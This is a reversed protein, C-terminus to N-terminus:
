QIQQLSSFDLVLYMEEGTPAFGRFGVWQLLPFGYLHYLRQTNAFRQKCKKPEEVSRIGQDFLSMESYQKISIFCLLILSRRFNHSGSVSGITELSNGKEFQIIFKNAGWCSRLKQHSSGKEKFLKEYIQFNCLNSLNVNEKVLMQLKNPIQIFLISYVAIGEIPLFLPVIVSYSFSESIVFCNSFVVFFYLYLCFFCVVFFTCRFFFNVFHLCQSKNKTRRNVHDINALDSFLSFKRVHDTINQLIDKGEVSLVPPLDAAPM